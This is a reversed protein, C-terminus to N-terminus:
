TPYIEKTALVAEPSFVKVKAQIYDLRSMILTHDIGSLVSVTFLAQTTKEVIRTRKDPCYIVSSIVSKADAVNM